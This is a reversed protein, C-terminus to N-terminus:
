SSGSKWFMYFFVM